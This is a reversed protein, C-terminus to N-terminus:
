ASVVRASVIWPRFSEPGFRSPRFSGNVSSGLGLQGPNVVVVLRFEEGLKRIKIPRPLESQVVVVVRFTKNGPLSGTFM